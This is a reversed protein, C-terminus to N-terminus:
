NEGGVQFALLVIGVWTFADGLLSITQSLYLNPFIKERLPSFPNTM